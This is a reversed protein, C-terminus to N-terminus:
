GGIVSDAVESSRDLALMTKSDEMNAEWAKDPAPMVKSGEKNAEIAVKVVHGDRAGQPGIALVLRSVKSTIHQLPIRTHTPIRLGSFSDTGFADNTARGRNANFPRGSGSFTLGSRAGAGAGSNGIGGMIGNASSNANVKRGPNCKLSTPNVSATQVMNPYETVRVPEGSIHIAYGQRALYIVAQRPYGSVSNLLHRQVSPNNYPSPIPHHSNVHTYPSVATSNPVFEPM